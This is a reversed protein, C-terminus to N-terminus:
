LFCREQKTSREVPSDGPRKAFLSAFLITNAMQEGYLSMRCAKNILLIKYSCRAEIKSWFTQGDRFSISSNWFQKRIITSPYSTIMKFLFVLKGVGMLLTVIILQNLFLRAELGSKSTRIYVFAHLRYRIFWYPFIHKTNKKKIVFWDVLNHKWFQKRSIMSKDNAIM